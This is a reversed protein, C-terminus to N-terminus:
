SLMLQDHLDAGFLRNLARNAAHYKTNQGHQKVAPDNGCQRIAPQLCIIQQECDATHENGKYRLNTVECHRRDLTCVADLIVALEERAMTTHQIAKVGYQRHREHQSKKGRQSFQKDNDSKSSRFISDILFTVESPELERDALYCGGGDLKVIDIGIDILSDITRSITKRDISEVNYKSKIKNIIDAQKLPHNEDSEEKLVKLIYIIYLKKNSDIPM